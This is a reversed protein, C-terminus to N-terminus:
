WWATGGRVRALAPDADAGGDLFQGVQNYYLNAPFMFSHPGLRAEVPGTTYAHGGGSRLSAALEAVPTENPDKEACSVEACATANLAAAM